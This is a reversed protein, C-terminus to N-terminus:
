PTGGLIVDAVALAHTKVASDAADRLWAALPAALAPNVLIAWRNDGDSDFGGIGHTGDMCDVGDCGDEAACDVFVAQVRRPNGYAYEPQWPGPNAPAATHELLNAARRLRDAPTEAAPTETM